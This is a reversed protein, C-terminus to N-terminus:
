EFGYTLLEQLNLEIIDDDNLNNRLTKYTKVENEIQFIRSCMYKIEEVEEIGIHEKGYSHIANTRAGHQHPTKASRLLYSRLRNKDNLLEDLIKNRKSLRMQLENIKQGLVQKFERGTKKFSNSRQNITM